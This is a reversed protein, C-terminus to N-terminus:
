FFLDIRAFIKKADKDAIIDKGQFYKGFFVVNPFITYSTGLEVGKQGGNVGDGYTSWPAAFQDLKRYAAYVGWTGPKLYDAGKYDLQVSYANNYTEAETNNAYEAKLAWNKDFVYRANTYWISAKFDTDADTKDYYVNAFDQEAFTAGALHEYGVNATLKKDNFGVQLAQFSATKDDTAFAKNEQGFEDRGFDSWQNVDLRGAEATVQWKDGYSVAVGSFPDDTTSLLNLSNPLKGFKVNLKDYNGEAWVRKLEASSSSTDDKLNITSDIRANVKWHANVEAHPELRFVVDQNNAKRTASTTGADHRTSTYTFEALGNWKVKDANRELSAVRVGLNNLESAFEAALRDILAKDSTAKPAKAMAKAVMQAMEYRTINKSGQFSADGYGEVVGDAALQAIADYAWHDSPVDSFPNAAAFTTGMAGIIVASTMAVVIKKQM